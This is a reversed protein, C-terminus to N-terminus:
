GGKWRGLIVAKLLLAEGVESAKLPYELLGRTGMVLLLNRCVLGERYNLRPPCLPRPSPRWAVWRVVLFFIHISYVLDEQRLGKNNRAGPLGLTMRDAFLM